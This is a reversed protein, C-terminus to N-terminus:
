GVHEREGLIKRVLERLEVWRPDDKSFIARM